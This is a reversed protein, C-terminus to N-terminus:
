RKATASQPSPAPRSPAKVPAFQNAIKIAEAREGSARSSCNDSAGHASTFAAAAILIAILKVSRM